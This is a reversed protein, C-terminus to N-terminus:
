QRKLRKTIELSRHGKIFKIIEKTEDNGPSGNQRYYEHLMLELSGFTLPKNHREEAILLRGGAIQIVSKEYQTGKLTNLITTEYAQRKHRTDQVQKNLNLLLNDFHVWHRVQDGLEDVNLPTTISTMNIVHKFIM